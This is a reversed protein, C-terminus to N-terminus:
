VALTGYALMLATGTLLAPVLRKASSSVMVLVCVASLGIRVWMPVTALMGSPMVILRVTLAALMAYTVCSLWKFVESETDIHGALKVGVARCLYTGVIAAGLALWADPHSTM